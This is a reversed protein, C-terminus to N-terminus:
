SGVCNAIPWAGMVAVLFGRPFGVRLRMRGLGGLLLLTTIGRGGRLALPGIGVGVRLHIGSLAYHADTKSRVCRGGSFSVVWYGPRLLRYTSQVWRASCGM